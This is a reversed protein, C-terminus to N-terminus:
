KEYNKRLGSELIHELVHQIKAGVSESAKEFHSGKKFDPSFEVSTLYIGRRPHVVFNSKLYHQAGLHKHINKALEQLEDKENRSFNALLRGTPLCPFVYIDDGRFDSVTHMFANKGVILEEVLISNGHGSVDAIADVLERFTKAIHVGTTIDSTLSRVIWPAGFKEFVEKAKHLVFTNQSGDFDQQFAPIVIHRPMPINISKLHKELIERSDEFVKSFASIGITPISFNNLVETFNSHSTNYVLDVKDILEVPRIPIGSLHWVDNKDVLIDVPRWKDGLNEMIFMFIEGGKQLSKEYQEGSGGRLIGVKKMKIILIDCVFFM